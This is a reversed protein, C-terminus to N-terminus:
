DVNEIEFKMRALQYLIAFRFDPVGQIIEKTYHNIWKVGDTDVHPFLECINYVERAIIIGKKLGMGVLTSHNGKSVCALDLGQFYFAKQRNDTTEFDHHHLAVFSDKIKEFSLPWVIVYDTALDLEKVEDECYIFHKENNEDWYHLLFPVREDRINKIDECYIISAMYDTRVDDKIIEMLFDIFDLKEQITKLTEIWYKATDTAGSYERQGNIERYIIGNKLKTNNKEVTASCMSKNKKKKLKETFSLLGM